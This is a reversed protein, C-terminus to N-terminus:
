QDYQRNIQLIAELNCVQQLRTQPELRKLAEVTKRNRPEALEQSSLIVRSQAWGDSRTQLGEVPSPAEAPPASGPNSSPAGNKAPPARLSEIDSRSVLTIEPEGLPANAAPAQLYVILWKLLALHLLASLLAAIALADRDGVRSHHRLAGVLQAAIEARGITL